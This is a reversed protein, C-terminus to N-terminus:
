CSVAMFIALIMFIELINGDEAKDHMLQVSSNM